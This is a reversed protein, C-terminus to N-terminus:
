AARMVEAFGFGAVWEPIPQYEILEAGCGPMAALAAIWSKIEVAGNGGDRLIEDDSMAVLGEVDGAAALALIRRDFEENVRGMEASGVWHSIGGTGFVAVREAGPWSQVADRINQGIQQARRSRIFPAVAENLYVPITRVPSEAGLVFHWPVMTAHDVLMTKAFSWDIGARHGERLIHSALEQHNRIVQRAIGLWPEFPGEIDGIAILCQPICDPGFLGYHDTGITVVTDIELARVRDAIHRYAARVAEAKERPAADPAATVLPDHPMLFGGVIDAM